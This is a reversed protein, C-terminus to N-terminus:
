SAARGKNKLAQIAHLLDANIQELNQLAELKEDSTAGLWIRLLSM